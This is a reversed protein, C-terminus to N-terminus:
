HTRALIICRRLGGDPEVVGEERAVLLLHRLTFDIPVRTLGESAM